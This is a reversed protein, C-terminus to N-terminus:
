SAAAIAARASTAETVRAADVVLLTAVITVLITVASL